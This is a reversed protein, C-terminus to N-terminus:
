VLRTRDGDDEGSKLVNDHNHAEAVVQVFGVYPASNISSAVRVFVNEQEVSTLWLAADAFM